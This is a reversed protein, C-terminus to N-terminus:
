ERYAEAKQLPAELLTQNTAEAKQPPAELPFHFSECRAINMKRRKTARPTLFLFNPDHPSINKVATIVATM